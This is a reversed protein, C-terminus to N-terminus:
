HAPKDKVEKKGGYSLKYYLCAMIGVGVWVETYAKGYYPSMKAWWAAFMRGAM